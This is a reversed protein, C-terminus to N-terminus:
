SPALSAATDHRPLREERLRAGAAMAILSSIAAELSAHVRVNPHNKLFPWPHPSVVFVTRGRSLAAGTELLSGFQNETEFAVLLLVDARGADDICDASHSRWDDATPEGNNHNFEWDLWVSILDIGHGALAARLASFWVWHKSKSAVAVKM